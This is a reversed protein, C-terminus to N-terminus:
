IGVFVCMYLYYFWFEFSNDFLFDKHYNSIIIIVTQHLLSNIM